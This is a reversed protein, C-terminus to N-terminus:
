CFCDIETRENSNCQTYTCVGCEAYCRTARTGAAAADAGVVTGHPRAEPVTRFTEVELKDINLALKRM